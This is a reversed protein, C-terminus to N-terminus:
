EQLQEGVLFPLAGSFSEIVQRVEADIRATVDVETVEVTSMAVSATNLDANLLVCKLEGAANSWPTWEALGSGDPSPDGTRVFQAVYAQMDDSLAERGPRNAENFVWGSLVDFFDWNGFFFPVDM